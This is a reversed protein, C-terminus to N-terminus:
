AALALESKAPLKRGVPIAVEGQGTFALDHFDGARLYGHGRKGWTPGWSNFVRFVEGLKGYRPSYGNVLICHGGVVKGSVEVLGDGRPEYMSERWPIGIIAPGVQLLAQILEEVTRCWLWGEILGLQRYWKMGANVSTGEYNEGPFEDNRRTWDYGEFALAQPDPFKVRVPSCLADGVIGHPVCAGEQGQDLPDGPVWFKSKPEATAALRDALWYAESEPDYRTVQDLTRGAYRAIM